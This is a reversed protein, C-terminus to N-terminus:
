EFHYTATVGAVRPAGFQWYRETVYFKRPDNGFCFGQVAYKEDFANRVWAGLEIREGRWGAGFHVLRFSHTKQDNSDSVYYGDKGEVEMRLYGHRWLSLEAGVHFQWRPAQAQAHGSRDVFGREPDNAVFGDIRTDLLGLSADLSLRPLAQWGITAEIGRNTGSAANDIYGVFQQADVSWAMLQVDRRDMFFAAIALQLLGDPRAHKWGIEYNDLLEAAYQSRAALFDLLAPDLQAKRAKGIADGNVGGAKYGRAALAYIMSHSGIGYQLALQGGRLWQAPRERLGLSDRYNASFRQVRLGANLTMREGAHWELEGYIAAHGSRYNSRFAGPADLDWDFFQRDLRTDRRIAHIGAVWDLRGPRGVLRLDLSRAAADRLYRDSSAYEWGDCASGACIGPHSWDEDYSYETDSRMWTALAQVDFARAANWQARLAVADSRQSDRGPQDSLTHRTNDLSWADYGNDADIHMATLGFELAESAQWSMRARVTTEDIGNTDNRSLFDNRIYGDSRNRQLALRGQLGPAIGGGAVVGLTSGGYGSVGGELRLVREHTPAASRINVLGALASAGFAIGQPGRLVEVQEVDFLTGANGLGSFDIGDVYLGVSPDVPDVFQEREGIGRIQVFRGRSAGGSYNVNPAANLLEEFHRAERGRILASPLVSISAAIDQQSEPRLRATVVVEEIREATLAVAPTGLAFWVPVLAVCAGGLSIVRRM